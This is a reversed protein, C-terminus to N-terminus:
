IDLGRNIMTEIILWGPTLHLFRSFHHDPQDLSLDGAKSRPWDRAKARTGVAASTTSTVTSQSWPSSIGGPSAEATLLEGPQSTIEQLWGHEQIFGL